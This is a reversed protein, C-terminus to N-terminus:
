HICFAAYLPVSKIRNHFGFNKTSLRIAYPPQYEDMFVSLSRSKTRQGAKVEVPIIHEGLQLVFDIEAVSDSTWYYLPHGLASLAQAVYNEALAGLFGVDTGETALVLSMPIGSKMTLLGTDGMYLKFGTLDMYAALPMRATALRDCKLSVGAFGLWEVAAGFIAATGGKRAVKYQFKHNDKALQAPISDFAARIKISESETAYKTTDAAYDSLIGRQIDPVGLLSGSKEHEVVARPMGGVVLYQRYRSLARSHLAEPLPQDDAYGQRIRTALDEEGVAWLYEEFDFPHLTVSEVNGVPFSHQERNVAVGLLSGAAAVHYEGAQEAFYKLSTLARPNSQVEDLIVLTRGPVIREGTEVELSAIIDRPNINDQFYSSALLNTELNVYAVNDYHTRGFERLLHTKGVQRAGYLLLPLRDRKSQWLELSAEIRRKM